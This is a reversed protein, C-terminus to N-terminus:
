DTSFTNKSQTDFYATSSILKALSRERFEAKEKLGNLDINYFEFWEGSGRVRSALEYAGQQYVRIFDAYQKENQYASTYITNFRVNLRLLDEDKMKHLHIAYQDEIVLYTKDLNQKMIEFRSVPQFEELETAKDSIVKLEKISFFLVAISVPLLLAAIILQWFVTKSVVVSRSELSDETNENDDTAM